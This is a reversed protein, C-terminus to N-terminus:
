AAARRVGPSEPAGDASRVNGRSACGHHAAPTRRDGRENVSANQQVILRTESVLDAVIQRVRGGGDADSLAGDVDALAEGYRAAGAGAEDLLTMVTELSKGLNTSADLFVVEREEEIANASFAMCRLYLANCREETFASGAGLMQDIMHATDPDDGSEYAYWVTFNEPTPAIDLAAMRAIAANAVDTPSDINESNPM